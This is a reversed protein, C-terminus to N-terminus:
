RSIRRKYVTALTNGRELMEKKYGGGKDRDGYHVHMRSDARINRRGEGCATEWGEGNQPGEVM